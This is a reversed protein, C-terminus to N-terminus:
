LQRLGALYDKVRRVIQNKLPREGTMAETWHRGPHLTDWQSIRGTKREKGPNHNGFGDIVSNWLPSFLAILAAEVAETLSATEGELIMFRCAFDTLQIGNGEKISRAHQRLRSYLTNTITAQQIERSQRWGNPVAKGVYIPVSYSYKNIENGFKQYLGDTAICYIAYVGSGAFSVPPPLTHVPTGSFFRVADDLM